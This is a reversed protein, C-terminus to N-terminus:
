IRDVVGFPVNDQTSYFDGYLLGVSIGYEQLIEKLQGQSIEQKLFKLAPYQEM